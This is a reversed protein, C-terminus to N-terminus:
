ASIMAVPQVHVRPAIENWSLVVLNPFTRETLRRLSARIQPAVLLIPQLGRDELTRVEKGLAQLIAHGISPDLALYTGVESRQVSGAVVQEVQPDATIVYMVGDQGTYRSCIAPSLRVRVCETLAEVDRTM